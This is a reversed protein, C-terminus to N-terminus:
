NSGAIEQGDNRSGLAWWANQDIDDNIFTISGDSRVLNVGGIHRSSPAILFDGEAQSETYHGLLTNPTTVHVYVPATLSFGSSWSRGVYASELVHTDTSARVRFAINELPEPQRPVVHKSSVRPDGTRLELSSVGTQVLRESIMATNSSGDEIDSFGVTSAGHWQVPESPNELRIVGSFQGPAREGSFGTAESPWGMNGAYNSSGPNATGMWLNDDATIDSPCLFAEVRTGAAVANPHTDSMSFGDGDGNSISLDFQSHLNDREMFPLLPVLWSYYGSEFGGSGDSRGPGVQNVPFAQLASEYNHVAFGIQRLKNACSVRQAAARVQQVAPLLMGILIGIIAIVVLLEVLTFGSRDREKVSM